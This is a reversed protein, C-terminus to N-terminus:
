KLVEAMREGIRRYGAQNPHFHDSSLYKTGGVRFLDDTPVFITNPYRYLVRATEENWRRVVDYSKKANPLDGFANYLGMYLVKAKPNLSTIIEVIKEYRVVAGPIRASSAEPNVEESQVNFLDNGGISLTIIDAQRITRRIDEKNRLDSLLDDTRYGNVGHNLVYVNRGNAESLKVRLNGVYGLGAQDGTGRTLSDGLAVIQVNREYQTEAKEEAGKDTSWSVASPYLIDKVGLYFGVTLFLTSFLAFVVFVRWLTKSSM